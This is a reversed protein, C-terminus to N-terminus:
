WQIQLSALLMSIGISVARVIVRTATVPPALLVLPMGPGDFDDADLLAASEAASPM